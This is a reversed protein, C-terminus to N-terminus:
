SFDIGVVTTLVTGGYVYNFFTFDSMFRHAELIKIFGVM